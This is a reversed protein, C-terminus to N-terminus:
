KGQEVLPIMLPRGGNAGTCAELAKGLDPGKYVVMLVDPSHPYVAGATWDGAHLGIRFHPRPTSDATM